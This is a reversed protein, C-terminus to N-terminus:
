YVRGPLNEPPQVYLVEASIAHAADRALLPLFDRPSGLSGRIPKWRQPDYINNLMATGFRDGGTWIGEASRSAGRTLRIITMM